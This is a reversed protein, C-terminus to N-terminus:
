AITEKGCMVRGSSTEISGVGTLSRKTSQCCGERLGPKVGPSRAERPRPARPAAAAGAAASDQSNRTGMAVFLHKPRRQLILVEETKMGDGNSGRKIPMQRSRERITRIVTDRHVFRADDVELSEAIEVLCAGTPVLLGRLHSDAVVLVAYREPKLTRLMEALARRMDWFYRRARGARVEDVEDLRAALRDLTPLGAPLARLTHRERRPVSETGIYHSRLTEYVRHSVGLLEGIWWVSFKHSRPYEIATIYPPSSLIVDAIRARYPLAKADHGLVLTQVSHDAQAYFARLGRLARGYRDCFRRWVNPSARREVHHARSHAIDLANAVSSPGKAIIISSYVVLLFERVARKDIRAILDRLRVLDRQVQAHFWYDRNPFDPVASLSPPQGQLIPLTDSDWMHDIQAKAAEVWTPDLSTAKVRALLRSLPDIEAALANRGLLRAEVLTTGSGVFPDLLWERPATFQEIAWRALPPPFKAPFPHLGHTAYPQGYDDFSLDPPGGNCRGMVLPAGPTCTPPLSAAVRGLEAPAPNQSAGQARPDSQRLIDQDVM